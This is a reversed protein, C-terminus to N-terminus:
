GWVRDMEEKRSKETHAIYRKMTKFSRHGTFSMLVEPRMGRELSLTVFTKRAMHTSLFQWKPGRKEDPETGRYRTIRVPADLGIEKGLEKLLRNVHIHSIQQPLWKGDKQYKHLIDKAMTNLHIQVPSRTKHMRLHWVGDRIDDPHCNSIDSWRAGTFCGFLFLDRVNKLNEQTIDANIVTNLEEATLSIVEVDEEPVSYKRYHSTLPAGRDESWSLFTKLASMYKGVTNNTHHKKTMLFRAFAPGFDQDIKQFTLPGKRKEFDHLLQIVTNYKAITRDAIHGDRHKKFQEFVDFFEFSAPQQQVVADVETKPRRSMDHQLEDLRFGETDITQRKIIEQEVEGVRERLRVNLRAFDPDTRKVLQKLSDWDKPKVTVGSGLWIRKGGEHVSMMIPVRGLTNARNKPYLKIISM